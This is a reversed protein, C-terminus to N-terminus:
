GVPAIKNTNSGYAVAFREALLYSVLASLVHFQVSVGLKSEGVEFAIGSKGGESERDKFPHTIISFIM